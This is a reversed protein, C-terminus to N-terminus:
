IHIISLLLIFVDTDRLLGNPISIQGTGERLATQINTALGTLRRDLEHIAEEQLNRSQTYFLFASFAFLIVALIATFWLVLRFRISHLLVGLRERFAPFKKTTM